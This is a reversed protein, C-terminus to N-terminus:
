IVVFNLARPLYKKVVEVFYYYIVVKVAFVFNQVLLKSNGLDVVDISVFYDNCFEIKPM